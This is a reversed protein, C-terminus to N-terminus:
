ANRWRDSTKRAPLNARDRGALAFRWLRAIFDGLTPLIGRPFLMVFVILVTGLIVTV